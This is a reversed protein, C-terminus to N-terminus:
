FIDRQLRASDPCFERSRAQLILALHPDVPPVVVVSLNMV